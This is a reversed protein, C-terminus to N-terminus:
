WKVNIQSPLWTITKIKNHSLFMKTVNDYGSLSINPGVMLSNNQLHVETQNFGIWKM